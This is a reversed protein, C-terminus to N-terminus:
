TIKRKKGKELDGTFHNLYTSDIIRGMERKMGIFEYHLPCPEDVGCQRLGMVCHQQEVDEGVAQMVMRLNVEAARDPPLDFGGHPGRHSNIIGARALSQLVKAIFAEPAETRAAVVPLTLREGQHSALALEVAARFAYECTKSFFM